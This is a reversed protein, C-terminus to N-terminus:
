AWGSKTEDFRLRRRAVFAFIVSMGALAACPLAVGGLSQGDLVVSRMGRMAWYTPTLPAIARAWAPLLDFPVFAGGIAGFLVMGLYAFAGAEQATRCVATVAVGLLVLCVSFTVILPALAYGNGRIHLGFVLVGAVLLVCLQAIAIAVRPLSKGAIIEFSTARSARLRDWTAWGHESFFSFTVLSVIFFASMVAQGPVVHEAGNAHTFGGEVLAPRFAPKLFAITIVPFVLLVLISVPDHRALRLEHAVISGLRRRSSM